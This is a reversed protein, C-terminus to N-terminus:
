IKMWFTPLTTPQCMERYLSSEAKSPIWSAVYRLNNTLLNTESDLVVENRPLVADLLIFKSFFDTSVKVFICSPLLHLPNISITVIRDKRNMIIKDARLSNKGVHSHTLFQSVCYKHIVFTTVPKVSVGQLLDFTVNKRFSLQWLIGTWLRM